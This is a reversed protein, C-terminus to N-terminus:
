FMNTKCMLNFPIAFHLLMTVCIKGWVGQGGEGSGRSQGFILNALLLSKCFITKTCILNFPIVFLLLITVCIKGVSGWGEVVSPSPTLIDFNM